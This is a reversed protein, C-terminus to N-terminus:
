ATDDEPFSTNQLSLFAAGGLLGIALSQLRVLLAVGVATAMSVGYAGLLVVYIGEQLGIGNVTIPVLLGLSGLVTLWIAMGPKGPIRFASLSLWISGALLSNSVLSFCFGPVLQKPWLARAWRLLKAGQDRIWDGRRTRAALWIAAGLLFSGVLVLGLTRRNRLWDWGIEGPLGYYTGPIVLLILAVLGLARDLLVSAVSEAIPLRRSLLTARVADGGIGTLLFNNAFLGAGYMLALRKYGARRQDVLLQWRRINLLHIPMQLLTSAAVLTWRLKPALAWVQAWPTKLVLWAVLGLAIGLQLWRLRSHRASAARIHGPSEAPEQDRRGPLEM